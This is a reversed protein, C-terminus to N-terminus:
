KKRSAARSLTERIAELSQEPAFLNWRKRFRSRIWADREIAALLGMVLSISSLHEQRMEDDVDAGMKEQVIEFVAVPAWHQNLASILFELYGELGEREVKDLVDKKRSLNEDPRGFPVEFLRKLLEPDSFLLDVHGRALSREAQRLEARVRVVAEDFRFRRLLERSRLLRESVDEVPVEQPAGQNGSIRTMLGHAQELVLVRIQAGNVQQLLASLSELQPVFPLAM